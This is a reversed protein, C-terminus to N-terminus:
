ALIPYFRAGAAALCFGGIIWVQWAYTESRVDEHLLSRLVPNHGSYLRPEDTQLARPWFTGLLGVALFLVVGLM